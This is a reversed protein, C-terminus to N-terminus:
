KWAGRSGGSMDLGKKWCCCIGENECWERVFGASVERDEGIRDLGETNLWSALDELVIPDYMLIKEHWTLQMQGSDSSIAPQSEIASKIRLSLDPLSKRNKSVATSAKTSQAKSTKRSPPRASSLSSANPAAQKSLSTSEKNANAAENKEDSPQPGDARSSRIGSVTKNNNQTTTGLTGDNKSRQSKTENSAVSKDGGLGRSQDKSGGSIPAETTPASSPHINPTGTNTSKHKSEWCKELLTIMRERSKIAKFGYKAVQKSLNATSYGAFVPKESLAPDGADENSEAPSQGDRENNPDSDTIQVDNSADVPKQDPLSIDRSPTDPVTDIDLWEENCNPSPGINALVESAKPTDVLDIVEAKSLSGDFDRAAVSWLNRSGVLRSTMPGAISSSTCLSINGQSPEPAEAPVTPTACSESNNLALQTDRTLTPSEDRELQSLTGFVLEQDAFSKCAKEPPFIEFDLNSGKKQGLEKKRSQRPKSSQQKSGRKKKTDEKEDGQIKPFYQDLSAEKEGDNLYSATAYATITTLKRKQVRKPKEVGRSTGENNAQDETSPTQIRSTSVSNDM